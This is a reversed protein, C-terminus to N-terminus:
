FHLGPCLKNPRPVLDIGVRLSVNPRLHWKALIAADTLFSMNEAEIRNNGSTVNGTVEFQSTVDSNNLFVGGKLETGLSWRAREYTWSFGLQPGILDNDARIDYTGQELEHRLRGLRSKGDSRFVTPRCDAVLHLFAPGSPGV